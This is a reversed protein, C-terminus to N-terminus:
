VHSTAITSDQAGDRRYAYVGLGAALLLTFLTIMAGYRAGPAAYHMEIHHAGAPLIMGRLLFDATHIPAKVGDVTAIWGPYNIESLVLVTQTQARTAIEIQNDTYSILNATASSLAAALFQPLNEPRMKLLATRHPRIIDREGRIRRLAEGDVAEAEAVLWVRLARENRLIQAGGEDYVPTM